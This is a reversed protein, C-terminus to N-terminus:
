TGSITSLRTVTAAATPASPVSTSSPTRLTLRYATRLNMSLALEVGPSPSPPSLFDSADRRLNWPLYTVESSRASKASDSIASKMMRSTSRVDSTSPMMLLCRAISFSVAMRLSTDIGSSTVCAKQRRAPPGLATSLVPASPQTMGLWSTARMTRCCPMSLTKPSVCCSGRPPRSRPAMRSMAPPVTPAPMMASGTFVIGIPKRGEASASVPQQANMVVVASRSTSSESHYPGADFRGFIASFVRPRTPLHVTM